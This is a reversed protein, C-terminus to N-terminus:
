DRPLQSVDWGGGLDEVLTVADMMQQTYLNVLTQRNSLLTTQATIVNLYSDIGLKYRYIALNLYKQSSNVAVEQQQIQKKLVRLAVLNDEVGQFASLVTQRYTAVAGRYDAKVQAVAPVLEANFLPQSAAAGISWVRSSWNFLNATMTSEFGGSASLTINPFFATRAVGIQANAEFVAREDAAIDPRRELLESPLAVPINPPRAKLPSHPISFNGPARGLLVAIAHELQARLIRLNTGQAETTELQTEAQAMDQDSDIGTKFLVQTLKLSNSYANVTDDFLQILSDQGQLQFYDSALEAQASLKANELDAASAQAAGKAAMVTDRIKGWIDPEWSADFPVEYITTMPSRLAFSGGFNRERSVSPGATATPFYQAQDERVVAHAAMYNEFAAAINQNSIAVQEELSNLAPDDFMEWWNSRIIADNPQAVQWINTDIANTGSNEKFAAPTEVGPRSYKPALCGTLIIALSIFVITQSHISKM